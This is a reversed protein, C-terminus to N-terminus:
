SKSILKTVKKLLEHCQEEDLGYLKHGPSLKTGNDGKDKLHAIRNNLNNRLSRLKKPTYEELDEFKKM